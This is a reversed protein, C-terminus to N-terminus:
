WSENSSKSGIKGCGDSRKDWVNPRYDVAGIKEQELFCISLFSRVLNSICPEFKM